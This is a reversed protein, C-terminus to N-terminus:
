YDICVLVDHSMPENEWGEVPQLHPCIHTSCTKNMNM